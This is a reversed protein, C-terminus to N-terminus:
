ICIDDKLKRFLFPYNKSFYAKHDFVLNKSSYTSDYQVRWNVCSNISKILDKFLLQKKLTGYNTHRCIYNIKEFFLNIESQSPTIPLATVLYNLFKLREYTNYLKRIDFSKVGSTYDASIVKQLDVDKEYKSYIYKSALFPDKRIKKLLYNGSDSKVIEEIISEFLKNNVSEQLYYKQFAENKSLLEAVNEKSFFPVFYDTYSKNKLILNLCARYNNDNSLFTQTESDNKKLFLDKVINILPSSKISDLLKVVNCSTHIVDRLDGNLLYIDLASELRRPSVLKKQADPLEKWWNIASVALNEKYKQVFYQKDPEYPIDVQVQFRDKQAPDLKEVDYIEEEDDPNIAAWVIKLNNFKKGNISKFQLLEMVANRVKKQSRNFEDFFIADLEDYQFEKPRVLELYKMGNSDTVKEPVGILDVWPDLTSASFYKWRLKNKNFAEIIMSTKGVGHRGKFLVNINNQIWFDLKEKKM